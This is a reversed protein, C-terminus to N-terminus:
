LGADDKSMVKSGHRFIGDGSGWATVVPVLLQDVRRALQAAHRHRDGM